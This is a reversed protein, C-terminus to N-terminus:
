SFDLRVPQVPALLHVLLVFVPVIQAPLEMPTPALHAPPASPDMSITDVKVPRAHLPLLAHRVVIPVTRVFLETLITDM